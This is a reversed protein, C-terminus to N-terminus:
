GPTQSDGISSRAICAKDTAIREQQITRLLMAEVSIHSLWFLVASSRLNIPM